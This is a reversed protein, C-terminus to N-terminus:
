QLPAVELAARTKGVWWEFEETSRVRHPEDPHDVMHPMWSAGAMVMQGIIALQLAV